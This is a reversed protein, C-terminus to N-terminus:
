KETSNIGTPAPTSKIDNTNSSPMAKYVKSSINNKIINMKNKEM